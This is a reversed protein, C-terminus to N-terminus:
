YDLKEFGSDGPEGQPFGNKSIDKLEKPMEPTKGPFFNVSDKGHLNKGTEEEVADEFNERLDSLEELLSVADDPDFGKTKVLIKLADLKIRSTKVIDNAKSMDNGKKEFKAINKEASKIGKEVSKVAKSLQSAAELMGVMQFTDEMHEFYEDELTTFALEANGNKAAGVAKDYVAKLADIEAQIGAIVEALDVEGKQAKIKTKEFFKTLKTFTRDAQKLIRPFNALMNLGEINLDLMDIFINFDDLAELAVDMDNTNKITEVATKGKLYSEKVETSVQYGAAEVKTITKEMQKVAKEMGKTGKKMQELGKQMMEDAGAPAGFGEPIDMDEFGAPPGFQAFAINASISFAFLTSLVFLKTLLNIKKM